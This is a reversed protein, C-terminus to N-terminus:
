GASSDDALRALAVRRRGDAQGRMQYHLAVGVGGHEDRRSVVQDFWRGGEL